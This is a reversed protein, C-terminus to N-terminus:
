LEIKYAVNLKVPKSLKSCVIIKSIMTKPGGDGRLLLVVMVVKECLIYKIKGKFM